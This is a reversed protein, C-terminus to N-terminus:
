AATRRPWPVRRLLTEVEESGLARAAALFILGGLLGGGALALVADLLRGTELHNAEHLLVLYFGVVEAMLVVAVLTRGLSLGLARLDLGALRARLTWFLLGAELVTALSVALALGRVGFPGVFIWSLILNAVVAVVAFAVPTRTDGLAYFGRSLIEAAAFAFLGLAYFIIVGSTIDTAAESFAGHEFLLAVLPKSLIMLGVAAPITLFLILRLSQELTRRLGQRDDVAQEALTPFVATSIAMGFLGLPMMIVLWGYNVASIAEDNVTSAFFITIIFNLQFAALGLMRPAMLRAVERVATDRWHAIPRYRMGVSVLAPVQLALHLAAGVVVAAALAHVDDFALAGVIIAANYVMPALAPFLFHRRANLMGMFMGSVAFLIPSLMMLRTLDVALSRLEEQQGTGEGLGPAMAPVLVPALLFGLVAFVITAIAVLNLVSSALRWAAEESEKTFLRAFTPIFASGLTAGALVQFILDPLRFAVWYAGLESSAGFADAIAVSRLVGLLRSGLFGFAVITAAAALSPRELRGFFGEGAPTAREVIPLIGSPAAWRVQTM